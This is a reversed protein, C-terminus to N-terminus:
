HSIMFRFGYRRVPLTSLLQPDRRTLSGKTKNPKKTSFQPLTPGSKSATATTIISQPLLFTKRIQPFFLSPQYGLSAKIPSLDTSSSVRSNHAYEVWPLYQSWDAPIAFTLCRLTAELEQNLHKVQGNSQPHYGSTLSSKADLASFLHTEM